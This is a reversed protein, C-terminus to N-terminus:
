VGADEKESPRAGYSDAWEEGRECEREGDEEGGEYAWLVYRESEVDVTDVDVAGVIVGARYAATRSDAGRV